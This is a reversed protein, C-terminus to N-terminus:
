TRCFTLVPVTMEEPTLSGHYSVLRGVAPPEWASALLANTGLCAVVVDGIRARHAPAVTGWLGEAIAEDRSMVWASEGLVGSYAAMVDAAAGPVVHLHRARPEGAAVVVGVSLDSMGSIDIKEAVDLQGHDATVVLGAGRPLGELLRTVLTGVDAAALAWRSSSLGYEHASKDLDPHYGYVLGPGARLAALMGESLESIDSAGVLRSGRYCAVTLGTGAFQPRTVLVSGPMRSFWTPVPQWVAPDPDDGWRIHNLVGGGGPRRVSFGVIGHEGPATGTGITALSVPTTSPFGSTIRRDGLQGLVPAHKVAEGMQYAGLGDVLLVAVRDVGGLAAGLGLGDEAGPTGLVAAVSPLLEALSGAGYAPRVLTM